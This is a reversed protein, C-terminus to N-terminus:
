GRTRERRDRTKSKREEVRRQRGRGERQGGEVRGREAEGGRRREEEGGRWAALLCICDIDVSKGDDSSSLFSDSAVEFSGLM